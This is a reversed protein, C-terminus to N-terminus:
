RGIIERIAQRTEPSWGHKRNKRRAAAIGLGGLISWVVITAPEPVSAEASTTGVYVESINAYNAASVGNTLGIWIAVSEDGYKSQLDALTGAVRGSTEFPSFVSNLTIGSGLTTGGYSDGNLGTLKNGNFTFFKDDGGTDLWLNVSLPSGTSDVTISGVDKLKLSGDFGIVIGADSYGSYTPGGASITWQAPNGYFPNAPYYGAQAFSGYLPTSAPQVYFGTADNIAANVLANGPTYVAAQTVGAMLVLVVGLLLRKM